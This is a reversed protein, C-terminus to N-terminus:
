LRKKLLRQCLHKGTFKAFNKLVGIKCFMEPPQKQVEKHTVLQSDSDYAEAVDNTKMQALFNREVSDENCSQEFDIKVM